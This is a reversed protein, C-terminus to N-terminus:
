PEAAYSACRSLSFSACILASAPLTLASLSMELWILMWMLPSLLSRSSSSEDKSEVPPSSPPVIFRSPAIALEPPPQFM